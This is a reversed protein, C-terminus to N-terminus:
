LSNGFLLDLQQFYLINSRFGNYKLLLLLIDRFKQLSLNHTLKSLFENYKHLLDDDLFV